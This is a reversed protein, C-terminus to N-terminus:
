KNTPEKLCFKQILQGMVAEVKKNLKKFNNNLFFCWIHDLLSSM